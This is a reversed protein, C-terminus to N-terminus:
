QARRLLPRAGSIPEDLGAGNKPVPYLRPQNQADRVTLPPKRRRLKAVLTTRKVHLLEAAASKKGKALRLAEEILRFELQELAQPLDLGGGDRLELPMAPSAQRKRAVVTAPLDDVDVRNKSSLIVLQEVINELQRVNGPWDYEWLYVMAETSIEVAIGHRRNCKELFYNVLTPIDSRRTRLPPVVIPIVQLRYFLDQRFAGKAVEEELDKNTSAIVRVDVPVAHDCGLPWVEREQLVRLLKAQLGLPLEGVEDLLLTGGKALQFLGPRPSLAGTFAGRAHGFLESELLEQPIAACNIPVFTKNARPSLSHINRAVLEKGTGTEGTILVTAETPAARQVLDSLKRMLPDNAVM